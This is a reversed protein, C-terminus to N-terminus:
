SVDPANEPTAPPAPPNSDCELNEVTEATPIPPIHLVEKRVEKLAARDAKELLKARAEAERKRKNQTVRLQTLAQNYARRISAEYRLLVTHAKVTDGLSRIMQLAALTAPTPQEVSLGAMDALITTEMEAIRTLRHQNHVLQEVLFTETPGQPCHEDFLLGRLLNYQELGEQPLIVRSGTLCHIIRNQAVAAKGEPSKPGSSKQANEFNAQARDSM